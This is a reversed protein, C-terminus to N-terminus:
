ARARLLPTLWARRANPGSSSQHRPNPPSTPSPAAPGATSGTSGSAPATPSSNPPSGPACGTCPARETHRWASAIKSPGSSARSASASARSTCATTPSKKAHRACFAPPTASPPTHPSSAGPTARTASSRRAAASHWRSCAARSTANKTTPPPSSSRASEHRGPRGAPAPADGLVLALSQTLLPTRLRAGAALAARHRGLPRVGGAHLGVARDRRLLRPLRARLDGDVGRHARGPPRSAERLRGPHAAASLARETAPAGGALVASRLQDGPHSSRVCLTVVEADTIRRRANRARKPLLDDAACFVATLLLDLDALMTAGLPRRRLQAGGVEVRAGYGM